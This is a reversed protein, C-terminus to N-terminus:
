KNIEIDLLKSLEPQSPRPADITVIKGDKSFVLFRPIAKISYNKCIDSQFGNEGVLQIGQLKNDIIATKWKEVDKIEDVSYSIIVLDKGKYDEHLKKLSPIEKLCPGCWTAWVDILVVKGLFDSLAVKKGDVSSGVINLAKKGIPLKRISSELIDIRKKQDPTLIYPKCKSLNDLYTQDYAKARSLINNILYYGKITDNVINNIVVGYVEKQFDTYDFNEKGVAKQLILQQVFLDVYLLGFDYKLVGTTKFHPDKALRYYIEHLENRNPHESRPMALFLYLQYEFEDNVLSKLMKDFVNSSQINDTIFADKRKEVSTIIPFLDKYTYFVSKVNMRKIDWLIENWKSLKTNELDSRNVNFTSDTIQINVNKGPSVYIRAASNHEGIRYLGPKEAKFIFQFSGDKSVNTSSRKELNGNRVGYLVVTDSQYKLNLKGEIKTLKSEQSIASPISVIAIVFILFLGRKKM